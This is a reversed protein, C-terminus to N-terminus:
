DLRDHSKRESEGLEVVDVVSFVELVDDIESEEIVRPLDGEGLLFFLTVPDSVELSDSVM